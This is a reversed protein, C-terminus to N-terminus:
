QHNTGNKDTMSVTNEPILPGELDLDLQRLGPDEAADRVIQGNHLFTSFRKSKKAPEKLTYAYEINSFQPDKPDPNGILISIDLKVACGRNAAIAQAKEFEEQINLKFTGRCIDYFAIKKLKQNM